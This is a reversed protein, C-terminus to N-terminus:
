AAFPDAVTVSAPDDLMDAAIQEALYAADWHNMQWQKARRFFLQIDYELTFGIGGHVQQAMATVDRFTDCAFLKAMAALRKFPRGQSAAWAAEYVLVRAGDVTTSADALYHAIAQFAGLPKDFQERTKAYDVTIELARAAGGVAQAAALVLARYMAEEWIAWGDGGIRDAANVPVEDFDVRYQTDGAMSFQQTLILGPADRDVLFLGIGDDARALVLLKQAAAAFFVHRKVGDLVYRDANKQARVQVGQPGFGRDPELWAPAVILDGAAIAPLLAQKQAESAGHEIALAALVSSAFHPIPALARGFQEYVLAADLLNMGPGGYQEGICLGLLGLDRLQNWLEAPYGVPDNEMRRVVAIDCHDGCLKATMDRLMIQEENLDLDM